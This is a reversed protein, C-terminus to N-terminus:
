HILLRKGGRSGGSSGQLGFFCKFANYVATGFGATGKLSGTRQASRLYCYWHADDAEKYSYGTQHSVMCALCGRVLNGWEASGGNQFMCRANVLMYKDDAGYPVPANRDMPPANQCCREKEGEQLDKLPQGDPGNCGRHSAWDIIKKQYIANLTAIPGSFLHVYGGAEPTVAGGGASQTQWGTPDMSNVPDASAYLYKQLSAPDMLSGEFPDTSLFRGTLPNFYRARLYYLGLDADYQESRYLYANPTAGTTSVENGWADYDSTDTVTGIADTLTRVNDSGDYGYFSPTWTSNILQNQSIRRLGYTYMRQVASGVVEEVVQEYGTPNLDDVLYRTTVGGVAKSVRNGDGDYQLAVATGNMTKVRNEFDYAFTKGGSTLTNGSADYTETSLRDNADFTASGTTIGPLTSNQNLRNGVPDLGYNVSGNKARPDLSITEQTLRYIGDYTWALSRGSVGNTSEVASARNGTVGLTYNYGALPSSSKSQALNSLRNLDDYTFNSTLGNPYVLRASATEDYVHGCGLRLM